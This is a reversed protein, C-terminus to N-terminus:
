RFKVAKTLATLKNIQETPVSASLTIPNSTRHSWLEKITIYLRTTKPLHHVIQNAAFDLRFFVKPNINKSLSGAYQDM